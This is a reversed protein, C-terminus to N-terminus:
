LHQRTWTQRGRGSWCGARFPSRVRFPSSRFFCLSPHTLAPHLRSSPIPPVLGGAGLGALGFDSSPSALFILSYASEVLGQTQRPAISPCRPHPHPPRPSPSKQSDTQNECYSLLAPVTIGMKPILVPISLPYPLQETISGDLQLFSIAVWELIRAQLIGHVSCGPPSCDM